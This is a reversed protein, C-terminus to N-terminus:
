DTPILAEITESAFDKSLEEKETKMSLSLEEIRKLQSKGKEKAASAYKTALPRMDNVVKILAPLTSEDTDSAFVMDVNNRITQLTTKRNRIEDAAVERYAKRVSKISEPIDFVVRRARGLVKGVYASPDEQSADAKQAEVQETQQDPM